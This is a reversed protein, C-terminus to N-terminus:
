AAAERLGRATRTAPLTVDVSRFEADYGADAAQEVIARFEQETFHRRICARSREATRESKGVYEALQASTPMRGLVIAAGIWDQLQTAVVAGQILGAREFLLRDLTV